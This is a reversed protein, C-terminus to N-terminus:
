REGLITNQNNCCTNFHLNSVNSTRSNQRVQIKDKSFSINCIPCQQPDNRISTETKKVTGSSKKNTVTRKRGLPSLVHAEERESSNSNNKSKPLGELVVSLPTLASVAIPFM